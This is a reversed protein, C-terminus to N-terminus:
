FHVEEGEKFPKYNFQRIEVFDLSIPGDAVIKITHEGDPLLPSM